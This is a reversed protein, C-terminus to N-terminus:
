GAKTYSVRIGQDQPGGSRVDKTGKAVNQNEEKGVSGLGMSGVVDQVGRIEKAFKVIHRFEQCNFHSM